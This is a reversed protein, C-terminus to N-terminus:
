QTILWVFNCDTGDSWKDILQLDTWDIDKRVKLFMVHTDGVTVFDLDSM